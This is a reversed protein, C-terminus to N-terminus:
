LSLNFSLKVLAARNAAASSFADDLAGDETYVFQLFDFPRFEWSAILQCALFINNAQIQSTVTIWPSPVYTMGLGLLHTKSSGNGIEGDGNLDLDDRPARLRLYTHNANMNFSGITLRAGSDVRQQSGSFLGGQTANVSLQVAESQPTSLGFAVSNNLYDGVAFVVNDGSDFISTLSQQVINFRVFASANNLFTVSPGFGLASRFLRGANDSLSEGDMAVYVKEVGPTKVRPSYTGGAALRQSAPYSYFGLPANFDKSTYSYSGNLSIEDSSLAADAHSTFGRVDNVDSAAFWANTTIRGDGQRTRLDLGAAQQPDGLSPYRLTYMGGVRTNPKPYYLGRVVADTTAPIESDNVSVATSQTALVGIQLKDGEVFGQLGGVLPIERNGFDPSVLGIRRSYFLQESYPSGFAFLEPKQLFFARKESQFFPFPSPNAFVPDIAASSFEPAVAIGVSTRESISVRAAFSARAEVNNNRGTWDVWRPLGTEPSRYGGLLVANMLIGFPTSIREVNTIPTYDPIHLYFGTSHPSSVYGKQISNLYVTVSIRPSVKARTGRVGVASWPLAFEGSFGTPNPRMRYDFPEGWSEFQGGGDLIMNTARQNALTVCFGRSTQGTGQGDVHLCVYDSRDWWEGAYLSRDLLEPKDLHQWLAIYLNKDDYMVSVETREMARKWLPTSRRDYFPITTRAGQWSPERPDGDIDLDGKRRQAPLAPAPGPKWVEDAVTTITSDTAASGNGANNGTAASGNGADDGTAASGNGANDIADKLADDGKTSGKGGPAALALNSFVMASALSILLLTSCSCRTIKKLKPESGVLYQLYAREVTKM